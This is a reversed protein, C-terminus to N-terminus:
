PFGSLATNALIQMMHDEGGGHVICEGGPGHCSSHYKWDSTEEIHFWTTTGMSTSTPGWHCDQYRVLIRIPHSKCKQKENWLCGVAMQFQEPIEWIM